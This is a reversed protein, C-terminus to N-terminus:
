ETATGIIRFRMAVKKNGSNDVFATCTNDSANFEWSAASGWNCWVGKGSNALSDKCDPEAPVISYIGQTNVATIRRIKGINESRQHELIEFEMGETLQKKLQSLNKIM